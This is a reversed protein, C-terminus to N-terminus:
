LSCCWGDLLVTLEARRVASSDPNLVWVRLVRSSAATVDQCRLRWLGQVTCFGLGGPYLSAPAGRPVASTVYGLLTAVKSESGAGKSTSSSSGSSAPGAAAAAAAPTPQTLLLAGAQCRGKGIIKVSVRVLCTKQQQQQQQQQQPNGNDAPEAAVAGDVEMADGEPAGKAAAAAPSDRPVWALQGQQLARGLARSKVRGAALVTPSV